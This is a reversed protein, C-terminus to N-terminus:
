AWSRARTWCQDGQTVIGVLVDDDIVLVSRVRNDRMQRLAEVVMDGSRVHILAGSKQALADKVTTMSNREHGQGPGGLHYANFTLAPENLM